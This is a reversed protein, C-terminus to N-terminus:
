VHSQSGLCTSPSCGNQRQHRQELPTEELYENKKRPREVLPVSLRRSIQKGHLILEALHKYTIAITAVGNLWSRFKPLVNRM